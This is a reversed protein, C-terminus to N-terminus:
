TTRWKRVLRADVSKWCALNPLSSTPLAEPGASKTSMALGAAQLALGTVLLPRTGIRDAIAGAAPAILVPTATWPLLRLGTALPSYGMGLQLYQSTLFAASFIAGSM